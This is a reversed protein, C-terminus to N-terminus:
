RGLLATLVTGACVSVSTLLAGASLCLLRRRLTVYRATYEGRLEECRAAIARLLKKSLEIRDQAYLRVVEERQATTLWPMRDAFAEGEIGATRLEAQCLLYGEIENVAAATERTISPRAQRM